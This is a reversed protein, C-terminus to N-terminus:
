TAACVQLSGFMWHISFFSLEEVAGCGHHVVLQQNHLCLDWVYGMDAGLQVVQRVSGDGPNVVLVRHNVGDAVLLAQHAPSYVMGGPCCQEGQVDGELEWVKKETDCSVARLMEADSMVILKHSPIYCIAFPLKMGSHITKEQSFQPQSSNLRLIPMRGYVQDLAYIQDVCWAQSIIPIM